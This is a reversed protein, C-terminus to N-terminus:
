LKHLPPLQLEQQDQGRMEANTKRWKHISEALGAGSWEHMDSSYLSLNLQQVEAALEGDLVEVLGSLSHIGADPFQSAGWKLLADRSEHPDNSRAAQMVKRRLTRDHGTVAAELNEFLAPPDVEAPARRGRGRVKFFWWLLAAITLLWLLALALAAGKWLGGAPKSQTSEGSRPAAAPQQQPASSRAQPSADAAVAAGSATVEIPALRAIEMKDSDVNWWPIEVAPIEYSGARTPVVAIKQALVGRVGEKAVEDRRLPADPYAKLGSPFAIQPATLQEARLGAAAITVTLTAPEGTKLQDRPLSLGGEITVKNAPLWLSGSFGPPQPKVEVSVADSFLHLVPGLMTSFMNFPDFRGGPQQPAQQVQQGEFHIPEFELLGSQQPTVAYRREVVQWNVGQRQKTYQADKGLQEITANGSKIQPPSLASSSSINTNILLRVTYIIQQQVYVSKPSAEAEIIIHDSGTNRQPRFKAAEVATIESEPSSASGFQIPPIKIAGTRRPRLVLNWKISTTSRGNIVSFSSSQGQNILDFDAQLPSFDPPADPQQNLEFTLTFTENVAVPDHDVSVMIDAAQLPLMLGLLLLAAAM